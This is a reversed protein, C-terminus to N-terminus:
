AQEEAPRPADDAKPEAPPEFASVVAIDDDPAVTRLDLLVRDGEWVGVVQPRSGELQSRVRGVHGEQCIVSVGFSPLPRVAGMDDGAPIEIPAASVVREMAAIQAAIRDARSQLNLLPTSLLALAPISLAARAPDRCLMLTGALACECLADARVVAFMPSAAMRDVADRRGVAIGCKPGGTYGDGRAIVVTAGESLSRSATTVDLPISESLPALAGRGINHVVKAGHQDCLRVLDGLEPRCTQGRLAYPMAEVRLLMGAGSELAGRYDDISVADTAGVEVLEVGAQAALETLRSGDMTGLEGRAVVVPRGDALSQLALFM